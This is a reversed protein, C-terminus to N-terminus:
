HVAIKTSQPSVINGHCVSSVYYDLEKTSTPYNDKFTWADILPQSAIWQNQDSLSRFVRIGLKAALSNISASVLTNDQTFKIDKMAPPLCQYYGAQQLSFVGQQASAAYVNGNAQSFTVTSTNTGTPLQSYFPQWDDGNNYGELINTDTNAYLRMGDLMEIQTIHHIDTNAGGTQKFDIQSLDGSSTGTFLGNSTALVIKVDPTTHSASAVKFVKIDNIALQGSQKFNVQQWNANIGINDEKWRYILNNKSVAYLVPTGGLNIAALAKANVLVGQPSALHDINDWQTGLKGFQFRFIGQDTAAYFVEGDNMYLSGDDSGPLTGTLATLNSSNGTNLGMPQWTNNGTLQYIVLNNNQNAALYLNGNMKTLKLKDAANEIGTPYNWTSGNDTSIYLSKNAIVYYARHEIVFDTITKGALSTGTVHFLPQWQPTPPRHADTITTNFSSPNVHTDLVNAATIRLQKGILDKGSFNVVSNNPQSFIQCDSQKDNSTIKCTYKIALGSHPDNAINAINFNMYGINTSANYYLPGSKQGQPWQIPDEPAEPTAESKCVSDNKYPQFNFKYSSGWGGEDNRWKNFCDVETTSGADQSYTAASAIWWNDNAASHSQGLWISIQNSKGTNTDTLQLTAGFYFNLKTPTPSHMGGNITFMRLHNDSAIADYQEAMATNNSRDSKFDFVVKNPQPISSTPHASCSDKPCAYCVDEKYVTRSECPLTPNTIVSVKINSPFELSVQNDTYAYVSSLSLLLASGLLYHILMNKM